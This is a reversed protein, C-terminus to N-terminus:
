GIKGWLHKVHDAWLRRALDRQAVQLAALHRGDEEVGEEVQLLVQVVLLPVRKGRLALRILVAILYKKFKSVGM